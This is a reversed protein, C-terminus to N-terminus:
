MVWAQARPQTQLWDMLPKARKSCNCPRCAVVLNDQCHAGGRALPVVHDIEVDDKGGCYICTSNYLKYIALEDIEGMTANAKLARYRNRYERRKGPNDKNWQGIRAIAEERHEEYWQQVRAIIEGRHEQHYQRDYAKREEQHEARYQRKKAALEERNDKRYQRSYAAMEERHQQRYVRKEESHKEYYQRVYGPHDKLWQLNYCPRCLGKAYHPKERTTCAQCCDWERAWRGDQLM